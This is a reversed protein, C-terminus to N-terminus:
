PKHIEGPGILLKRHDDCRAISARRNVDHQTGNLGSIFPFVRDGSQPLLEGARQPKSHPLVAFVFSILEILLLFIEHEWDTIIIGRAPGNRHDRIGQDGQIHEEEQYLQTATVRKNHLPGEHRGAEQGIGSTIEQREETGHEHVGPPNM